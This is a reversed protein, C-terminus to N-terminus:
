FGGWIGYFFVFAPRLDSNPLQTPLFTVLNGNYANGISYTLSTQYPGMDEGVRGWAARLKGFSIDEKLFDPLLESFVFSASVSPYMYSNNDKPLTSAWDNRLSLDVFIFDKYGINASGYFSNIQRKQVPSDTIPRDKSANIHFLNPVTLGGRTGVFVYKREDLRINGGFNASVAIDDDM